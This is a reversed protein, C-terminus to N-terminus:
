GWASVPDLLAVEAQAPRLLWRRMALSARDAHCSIEPQREPDGGGLREEVAELGDVDEQFAALLHRRMRSAVVWRPRQNM